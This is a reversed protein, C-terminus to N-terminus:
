WRSAWVLAADIGISTDGPMQYLGLAMDSAEAMVGAMSSGFLIASNIHQSALWVLLFVDRSSAAEREQETMSPVFKPDNEAKESEDDAKVRKLGAETAIDYHRRAMKLYKRARFSNSPGFFDDRDSFDKQFFQAEFVSVEQGHDPIDPYFVSSYSTSLLCCVVLSTARMMASTTTSLDVHLHFM